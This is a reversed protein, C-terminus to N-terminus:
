GTPRISWHGGEWRAASGDRLVRCWIRPAEPLPWARREGLGM